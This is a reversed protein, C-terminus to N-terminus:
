CGCDVKAAPDAPAPCERYRLVAQVSRRASRCLGGTRFLTHVSNFVASAGTGRGSLGAVMCMFPNRVGSSPPKPKTPPKKRPPKLKPRKANLERKEEADRAKDPELLGQVLMRDGVLMMDTGYRSSLKRIRDLAQCSSEKLCM